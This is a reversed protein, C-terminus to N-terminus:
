EVPDSDPTMHSMATVPAAIGLVAALLNLWLPAQEAAILGYSQSLVIASAAAGYIWLRHKAKSLWGSVANSASM